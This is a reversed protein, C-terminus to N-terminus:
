FNYNKHGIYYSDYINRIKPTIVDITFLKELYEKDNDMKISQGYYKENNICIDIIPNGDEYNIFNIDYQRYMGNCINEELKEKYGSTSPLWDYKRLGPLLLQFQM